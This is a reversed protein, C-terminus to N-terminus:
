QSPSPGRAQQEWLQRTLYAQGIHERGHGIANLLWGLGTRTRTTRTVEHSLHDGNLVAISGDVDKEMEDLLSLLEDASSATVRFAAERERPIETDAATAVQFRESELTHSLLAAISNTHEGPKWNLADPSLGTVIEKWSAHQTHLIARSTDCIAAVPDLM